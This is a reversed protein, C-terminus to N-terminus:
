VLITFSTESYNAHGERGYYCDVITRKFANLRLVYCCTEPFAGDPGTAPVTLRLVGGTWGPSAAGQALAAAYTPGVEVAPPVGAVALPSPSLTGLALLNRSLNVDYHAQLEFEGLHGQHDYAVFDIELMDTSTVDSRGCPLLSSVTGDHHRIQVRVIATDPEDTCYHVTGAGCPNGHADTPGPGLVRNDITLVIYNDDKSDCIKLVRPNVLHGGADINYGTVQLYYTGDTFNGATLWNMLYDRSSGLWVRNGGWDNPPNAAEYHQLTEYVHRGDIPVAASFTPYHFGLPTFQLYVRTFDGNAAPPMVNWPGTKTTSWQFEYYDVGDLCDATGSITVRGAYPRDSYTTGAGPSQYGIQPAATNIGINGGINDLVDDCAQTLSLCDGDGCGPNGPPICCANDGAILKVDLTTPIDWRTDWITENLIVNGAGATAACDQTASFIVDPACDWWPEWPAWPWIRLRELEAGAPVRALLRTRLGPLMAPEIAAATGLAAADPGLLRAFDALAPQPSPRMKGVLEPDRQLVPAIKELLAPDLQWFRRRWWWWPWWGCCWTFTMSFAGSADTIACAILQRSSWWWWRDVDYACIKAGPVPRGDPCLLVGRITFKRCWRWWWWWYYAAILIPKVVLERGRGWRRAAVDVGITQLNPLDADAATDPGLMVRVTGPHTAFGFAAMGRGAGDIAVTQAHLAGRADQVVVKVKQGPERNEVASADLPVQLRFAGGGESKAM